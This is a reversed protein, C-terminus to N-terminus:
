GLLDRVYDAMVVPETGFTFIMQLFGDQDILFTNATHDVTYNEGPNAEFILGYDGGMSRVEAASGTMGLFEPDFAGLYERMQDATDRVGDVSILLFNVNEAEAGLEAKVRQYDGLTVPCVDPCHTYGFVLLTVKGRLDSLSLPAGDKGTLTFDALELPPDVATGGDFYSASDVVAAGTNVTSQQGLQYVIFLIAGGTISLSIVLAIVILLRPAKRTQSTM